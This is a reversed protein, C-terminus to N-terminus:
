KATKSNLKAKYYAADALGWNPDISSKPQFKKLAAEANQFQTNLDKGALHHGLAYSLEARMLEMRPNNPDINQKLYLMQKAEKILQENKGNASIKLINIYAKLVRIESNAPILHSISQFNREASKISNSAAVTNNNRLYIQAQKLGAYTAYYAPQWQSVDQAPDEFYTILSGISEANKAKEIESIKAQFEKDSLSQAGILIGSSILLFLLIRKM